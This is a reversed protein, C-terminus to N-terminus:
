DLWMQISQTQVYVVWYGSPWEPSATHSNETKLAYKCSKLGNILDDKYGKTELFLKNFVWPCNHCTTNVIAIFVNKMKKPNLCIAISFLLINYTDMNKIIPIIPIYLFFTIATSTAIAKKNSKLCLTRIM